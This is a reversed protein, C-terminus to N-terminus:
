EPFMLRPSTTQDFEFMFSFGREIITPVLVSVTNLNAHSLFYFFSNSRYNKVKLCKGILSSYGFYPSYLFRYATLVEVKFEAELTNVLVYEIFALLEPM